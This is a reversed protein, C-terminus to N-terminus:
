FPIESEDLASRVADVAAEHIRRSAGFGHLKWEALRTDALTVEATYEGGRRVVTGIDRDGLHVRMGPAIKVHESPDGGLMIWGVADDYLSM